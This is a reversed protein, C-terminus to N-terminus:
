PLFSNLISCSKFLDQVCSTMSIRAGSLAISLAFNVLIVICEIIQFKSLSKQYPMQWV